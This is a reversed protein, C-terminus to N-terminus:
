ITRLTAYTKTVALNEKRACGFRNLPWIIGLLKSDILACPVPGFKNSDESFLHEDGEVWVHGQPVRVVPVPYPPLTQVFDGELGIVRKIFYCDKNLPSRFAVVDNRKIDKGLRVSVRDFLGVDRCLSTDPNLTPQM